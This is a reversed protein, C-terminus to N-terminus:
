LTSCFCALKFLRSLATDARLSGSWWGLLWPAATTAAAAAAVAWCRSSTVFLWVSVAYNLFFLFFIVILGGVVAKIKKNLKHHYLLLQYLYVKRKTEM